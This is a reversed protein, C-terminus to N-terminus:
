VKRIKCWRVLEPRRSRMSLNNLSQHEKCSKLLIPVIKNPHTSSCKLQMQLESRAKTHLSKKMIGWPSGEVLGKSISDIYMNKPDESLPTTSTPFPLVPPLLPARGWCVTFVMWKYIRHLLEEINYTSLTKLIWTIIICAISHKKYTFPETLEPPSVTITLFWYNVM